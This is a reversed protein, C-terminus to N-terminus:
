MSGHAFVGGQPSLFWSHEVRSFYFLGVVALETPVIGKM